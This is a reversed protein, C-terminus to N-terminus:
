FVVRAFVEEGLRATRERHTFMPKLAMDVVVDENDFYAFSLTYHLAMDNLNRRTLGNDRGRSDVSVHEENSHLDM